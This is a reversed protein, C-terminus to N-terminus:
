AFRGLSEALEERHARPHQVTGTAVLHRIRIQELTTALLSELRCNALVDSVL